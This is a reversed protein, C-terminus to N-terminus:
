STSTARRRRSTSRGASSAMPIRIRSARIAVWLKAVRGAEPSLVPTGADDCFDMAWHPIGATEHSGQCVEGRMNSPLPFCMQLVRPPIFLRYRMRGYADFYPWLADLANQDFLTSAPLSWATKFSKVRRKTTEDYVGSTDITTRSPAKNLARQVMSVDTGTESGRLPRKLKM